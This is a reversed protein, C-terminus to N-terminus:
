LYAYLLVNNDPYSKELYKFLSDKTKFRKITCKNAWESIPTYEKIVAIFGGKFIQGNDPILLVNDNLVGEKLIFEQM